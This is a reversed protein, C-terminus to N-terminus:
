KKASILPLNLKEDSEDITSEASQVDTTQGVILEKNKFYPREPVEPQNLYVPLLITYSLLSLKVVM